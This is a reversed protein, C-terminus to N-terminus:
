TVTVKVSDSHKTDKSTATVKYTGPVTAKLLGGNADITVNEAPQNTSSDVVM